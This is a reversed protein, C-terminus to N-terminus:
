VVLVRATCVNEEGHENKIKKTHVTIAHFGTDALCSSLRELLIHTVVIRKIEKVRNPELHGHLYTKGRGKEKTQFTQIRVGLEHTELM